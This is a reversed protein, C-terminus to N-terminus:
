GQKWYNRIPQTYYEIALVAKDNPTLHATFKIELMDDVRWGMDEGQTTPPLNLKSYFENQSAYGEYILQKNIENVARNIKEVSSEFYRGTLSDYCVSDGTGVVVLEKSDYSADIKDQNVATRIKEDKGAGLTETVKNRYERFANETLSYAGLLAANRKTNLSNASIVCAITAAGMFAAPIYQKWAVRILEVKTLDIHPVEDVRDDKYRPDLLGLRYQEAEILRVVKPTAKVAMVSTSVVGAVALATLITPANDAAMKSASKVIHRVPIMM